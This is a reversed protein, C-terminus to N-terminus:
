VPPTPPGALENRKIVTPLFFDTYDIKLNKAALKAPINMKM